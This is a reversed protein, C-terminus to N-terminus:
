EAYGGSGSGIPSDAVALERFADIFAEQVSPPLTLFEIDAEPISQVRFPLFGEAARSEARPYSIRSRM